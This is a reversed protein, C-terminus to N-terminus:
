GWGYVVADKIKKTWQCNKGFKAQLPRILYLELKSWIKRLVFLIRELAFGGGGPLSLVGEKKLIVIPEGALSSKLVRKSLSPSRSVPLSSDFPDDQVKIIEENM